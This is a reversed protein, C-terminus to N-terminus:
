FACTLTHQIKRLCASCAPSGIRTWFYPGRRSVLCKSTRCLVLVNVVLSNTYESVYDSLRICNANINECRSRFAASSKPATASSQRRWRECDMLLMPVTIRRTAARSAQGCMYVIEINSCLYTLETRECKRESKLFVYWYVLVMCMNNYVSM